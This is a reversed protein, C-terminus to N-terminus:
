RSFSTIFSSARIQRSRKATDLLFDKIRANIRAEFFNDDKIIAGMIMSNFSTLVIKMKAVKFKGNTAFFREM